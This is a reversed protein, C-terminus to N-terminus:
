TEQCHGLQAFHVPISGGWRGWQWLFTDNLLCSASALTLLDRLSQLDESLALPSVTGPGCFETATVKTKRTLRQNIWEVPPLRGKWLPTLTQLETTPTTLVQAAPPEPRLTVWRSSLKELQQSSTVAIHAWCSCGLGTVSFVSKYIFCVTLLTQM